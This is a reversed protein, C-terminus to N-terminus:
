RKPTVSASCCTRTLACTRFFRSCSVGLDSSMDVTQEAYEPINVIKQICQALSLEEGPQLKGWLMEPVSQQESVAVVVKADFRTQWILQILLQSASRSGERLDSGGCDGIQSSKYM